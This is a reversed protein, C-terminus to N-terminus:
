QSAERVAAKVEAAPKPSGEDESRSTPEPVPKAGENLVILYRIVSSNLKLAREYEPLLSPDSNFQVVVYYGVEHGSIPYALTRKGWHNIDTIPDGSDDTKLLAHVTDLSESIQAEELASDFIYVIEYKRTM